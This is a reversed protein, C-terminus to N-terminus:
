EGLLKEAAKRPLRCYLYYGGGVVVLGGLIWWVLKSTSSTPSRVLDEPRPLATSGDILPDLAETGLVRRIAANMEDYQPRYMDELQTTLAPIPNLWEIGIDPLSFASGTRADQVADSEFWTVWSRYRTDISAALQQDIRGRELLQRSAQWLKFWENNLLLSTTRFAEVSPDPQVYETIYEVVSAGPYLGVRTTDWVGM